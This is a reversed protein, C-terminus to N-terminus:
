LYVFCSHIFTGGGLKDLNSGKIIIKILTVFNSFPSKNLPMCNTRVATCYIIKELCVFHRFTIEVLSSILYILMYVTFHSYLIRLKLNNKFVFDSSSM